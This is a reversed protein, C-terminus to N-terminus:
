RGHGFVTVIAWLLVITGFFLVYFKTSRMSDQASHERRTPSSKMPELHCADTLAKGM